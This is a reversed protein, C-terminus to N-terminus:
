EGNRLIVQDSPNLRTYMKESEWFIYLQKGTAWPEENNNNKAYDPLCNFHVMTANCGHQPPMVLFINGYNDKYLAPIKTNTKRNPLYESIM